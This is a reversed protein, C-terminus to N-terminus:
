KQSEFDPAFALYGQLVEETAACYRTNKDLPTRISQILDLIKIEIEM